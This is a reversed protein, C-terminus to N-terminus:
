GARAILSSKKTPAHFTRFRVASFRPVAEGGAFLQLVRHLDPNETARVDFFCDKNWSRCANRRQAEDIRFILRSASAMKMTEGQPLVAASRERDFVRGRGSVKRLYEAAWVM